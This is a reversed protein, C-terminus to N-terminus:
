HAADALCIVCFIVCPMPWMGGQRTLLPRADVWKSFLDIYTLIFTCGENLAAYKSVDILDVSAMVGPETLMIPRTTIMKKLNQHIQHTESNKM